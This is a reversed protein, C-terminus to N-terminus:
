ILQSNRTCEERNEELVITGQSGLLPEKDTDLDNNKMKLFLYKRIKLFFAKISTVLYKKLLLPFIINSLTKKKLIGVTYFSLILILSRFFLSSKLIRYM